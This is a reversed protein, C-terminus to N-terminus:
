KKKVITSRDTKNMLVPDGSKLLDSFANADEATEPDLILVRLDASESWSRARRIGEQEITDESERMGATDAVTVPYGGLDLHAEVIDRTTGAKESTIAIDRKTLWNVFSSKGVNPPGIVAVKLGSRLIEGKRDDDVFEKLERNTEEVGQLLDSLVNEPIQEDPFDIYAEIHAGFGKLDNSWKELQLRLAGELQNLGQDRQAETEANILDNIGEAETLDIRGNIVARKSFEGNEAFRFGKQASLASYVGELVARGGHLHLEMVDEGTYSEPGKFFLVISQDLKKKQHKLIRVSAMKPEPRAFGLLEPVDNVRPGSIRVMATASRGVATALSFITDDYNNVMSLQNRNLNLVCM